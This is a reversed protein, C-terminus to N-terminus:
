YKEFPIPTGRASRRVSIVLLLGLLNPLAFGIGTALAGGRVGLHSVFTLNLIVSLVFSIAVAFGWERLRNLAVLLPGAIAAFSAILQGGAVLQLVRSGAEFGPGFLKMVLSPALLCLAALPAAFMFSALGFKIANTRLLDHRGREYNASLRPIATANVAVFALGIVGAVRLAINLQGVAEASDWYAVVFTAVHPLGITCVMVVMLPFCSSLELSRLSIEGRRTAGPTTRKWTVHAAFAGLAASIVYSIAAGESNISEYSALLAFIALSLPLIFPFLYACTLRNTAKFLEGYLMVLTSPIVYLAMWRGTADVDAERFFHAAILPLSLYLVVTLVFSSGLVVFIASSRLRNVEEWDGKFARISVNRLLVADIGLRAVTAAITATALAFYFTGAGKPGVVRALLVAFVFSLAAGSTRLALSRATTIFPESPRDAKSM